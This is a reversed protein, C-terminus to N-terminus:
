LERTVGSTDVALCNKAGQTILNERPDVRRSRSQSFDSEGLSKTDRPSGHPFRQAPELVFTKKLTGSTPQLHGLDIRLLDDLDVIKPDHKLLLRGSLRGPVAPGRVHHPQFREHISVTPQAIRGVQRPDFRIEFEMRSNPGCRVISDELIQQLPQRRMQDVSRM